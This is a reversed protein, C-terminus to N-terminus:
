GDSQAIDTGNRDSYAARLIDYEDLNASTSGSRRSSFAANVMVYLGGLVILLAGIRGLIPVM